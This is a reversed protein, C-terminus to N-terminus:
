DGGPMVYAGTADIEVAGAPAELDLGLAAIKEGEILVDARQEGDATVVTGGRIVKYTM